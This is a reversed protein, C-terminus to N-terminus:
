RERLGEVFVVVELRADVEKQRVSKATSTWCVEMAQVLM